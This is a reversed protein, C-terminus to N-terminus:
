DSHDKVYKLCQGQNRFEPPGFRLYGGDKCDNKSRPFQPPTIAIGQPCEIGTIEDIVTNTAADVVAVSGAISTPTGHSIYVRGGDGTIALSFSSGALPVNDLLTNNTTELVQFQFAFLNPVYGRTGDPTLAIDLSIDTPLFDIVANTTTDIVVGGGERGAVYARTGDPTIVIGSPARAPITTINQHTAIDIVTITNSFSLVGHTVYLRTNDKSLALDYPAFSDPITDVVTNTSADIVSISSNGNTVYVRSSDSSVAIGNPFDIPITAIVTNTATDIVSLSDSIQNSVYARTGDPSVAVFRPFEGVPIVDVFTNTRTDIVQVTNTCVDAVYARQQAHTTSVVSTIFLLWLCTAALSFRRSRLTFM